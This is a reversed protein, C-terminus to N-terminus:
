LITNKDDEDWTLFDDGKYDPHKENMNHIGNVWAWVLVILALSVGILLAIM